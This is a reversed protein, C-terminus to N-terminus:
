ENLLYIQFEISDMIVRSALIILVSLPHFVYRKSGRERIRVLLARTEWSFFAFGGIYKTNFISWLIM